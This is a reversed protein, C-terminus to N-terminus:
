VATAVLTVPPIGGPLASAILVQAGPGTVGATTFGGCNLTLVSTTADISATCIKYYQPTQNIQNM